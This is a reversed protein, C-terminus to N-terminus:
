LVVLFFSLSLSLSLSLSVSRGVCRSGRVSRRTSPRRLTESRWTGYSGSAVGVWGGRWRWRRCTHALVLLLTSAQRVTDVKAGTLLQPGTEDPWALGQRPPHGTLARQGHARGSGVRRVLAPLDLGARALLTLLTRARARAADYVAGVDDNAQWV